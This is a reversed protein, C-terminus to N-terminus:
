AATTNAAPKPPQCPMGAAQFYEYLEQRDEDTLAKLEERGFKIKDTPQFFEVCRMLFTPTTTATM